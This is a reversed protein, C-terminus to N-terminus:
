SEVVLQYLVLAYCQNPGPSTSKDVPELGSPRERRGREDTTGVLVFVGDRIGVDATLPPGGNRDVVPGGRLVLDFPM